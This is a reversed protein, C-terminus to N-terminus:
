GNGGSGGGANGGGSGDSASGSGDSNIDPHGSPLGGSIEDGTLPPAVIPDIGPLSSQVSPPTTPESIAKVIVGAGFSMAMMVVVLWLSVPTRMLDIFPSSSRERKAAVTGMTEEKSSRETSRAITKDTM